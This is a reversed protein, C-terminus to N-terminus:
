SVKLGNMAEQAQAQELDLQPDDTELGSDLDYPVLNERYSERAHQLHKPLMLEAHKHLTDQWLQYAYEDFTELEKRNFKRLGGAFAKRLEQRLHDQETLNWKRPSTTPTLERPKRSASLFTNLSRITGNHRAQQIEPHNWKRALRMYLRGTSIAGHFNAALWKQWTGRKPHLKKAANLADGALKAHSLSGQWQKKSLLHERNATAAHQQLKAANAKERKRKTAQRQQYADQGRPLGHSPPSYIHLSM